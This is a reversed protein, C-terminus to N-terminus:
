DQEECSDGRAHPSRRVEDGRLEKRRVPREQGRGEPGQRGAHQQHDKDAPYWCPTPPPPCAYEPHQVDPHEECQQEDGRVPQGTADRGGDPGDLREKDRDEGEAPDPLFQRWCFENCPNGPQDAHGHEDELGLGPEVEDPDNGGEATRNGHRATDDQRLFPASGVGQQGGCGPLEDGASEEEGGENDEDFAWWWGQGQGVDGPVEVEPDDAGSQGVGKPEAAYM